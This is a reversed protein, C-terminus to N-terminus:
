SKGLRAPKNPENAESCIAHLVGNEVFNTDVM